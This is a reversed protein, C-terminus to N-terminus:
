EPGFLAVLSMLKFHFLGGVSATKNTSRLLISWIFNCFPPMNADHGGLGFQKGTFLKDRQKDDAIEASHGFRRCHDGGFM